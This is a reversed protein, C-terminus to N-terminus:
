STAPPQPAERGAARVAAMFAALLTADLRGAQRV